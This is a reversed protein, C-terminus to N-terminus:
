KKSNKLSFFLSLLSEDFGIGLGMVPLWKSM